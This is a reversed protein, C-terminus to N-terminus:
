LTENILTLPQATSLQLYLTYLREDIERERVVRQASPVARHTGCLFHIHLNYRSSYLAPIDGANEERESELATIYKQFDIVSNQLYM